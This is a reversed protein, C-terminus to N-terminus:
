RLRVRPDLSAYILDTLINIIVVMLAVMFVVAQVVPLDHNDIADKVLQGIGPWAFLVEVPVTYGALMRVLEWSSLTVIPIAANKLSHRRIITSENLGKARATIVYQKGSEDVMASRVIQTIRGAALAVLTAVPLVLYQLNAPEYGSSAFWGLTVSFILVLLMALWFNPVSVGLLSGVTCLKDIISGPKRSALTGLPIAILLAVLFATFVLQFSAPLRELVVDLAPRHERLSNGFDLHSANALFKGFQVILPQDYGLEHKMNLYDQRSATLPLLVKVPDGVVNSVFFVVVSVGVVVLVAHIMRRIFYALM